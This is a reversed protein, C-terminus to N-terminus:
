LSQASLPARDAQQEDIIMGEDALPDDREDLILRVHFHDCFGCVPALRDFLKADM